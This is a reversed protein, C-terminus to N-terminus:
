AEDKEWWRLIRLARLTNWRSPKGETELTFFIKSKYSYELRWRGDDARKSYLLDIADQLREDRPANVRAFYDLGRLVDYHWRPPYSLLTFKPHIIEGTKDSKYLRHQLLLELANQEALLVEARRKSQDAESAYREIYERLGELVNLTTHFSSHHPKPRSHRRCNWGCDPMLEQLLNDVIADIRADAIGFYVAIQLVMGVICRDCGALKRDFSEGCQEGLLTDIVLKAGRQAAPCDRPIGFACLTLLTYTTSIWKPSYIGGGWKGDADQLSLFRAGWGSDLTRQQEAQWEDAPAGLLDRMTQWRIAPDGQLLWTIIESSTQM